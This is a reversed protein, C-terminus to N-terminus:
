KYSSMVNKFESLDSYINISQIISWYYRSFIWKFLLWINYCLCYSNTNLAYTCFTANTRRDATFNTVFNNYFHILTLPHWSPMANLFWWLFRHCQEMRKGKRERRWNSRSCKLSTNTSKFHNSLLTPLLYRFSAAPSAASFSAALLSALWFSTQQKRLIKIYIKYLCHHLLLFHIGINM